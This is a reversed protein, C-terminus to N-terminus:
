KSYSRLIIKTSDLSIRGIGVYAIPDNELNCKKGRFIFRKWSLHLASRVCFGESNKPIVGTGFARRRMPNRFFFSATMQSDLRGVGCVEKTRYPPLGHSCIFLWWPRSFFSLFFIATDSLDCYYRQNM